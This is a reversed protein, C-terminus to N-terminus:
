LVGKWVTNNKVLQRYQVWGFFNGSTLENTVFNHGTWGLDLLNEAENVDNLLERQAVGIHEFPSAHIRDDSTLMESISKAKEMSDDAKRYSTQACLSVSLALAEDRSIVEGKAADKFFIQNGNDEVFSEVFPTHLQGDRLHRPLSSDLAKHLLKAVEAIEPQASKHDRLWLFNDWETSSVLVKTTTYTEIFRNTLQKHYGASNMMQAFMKNTVAVFKWFEERSFEKVGVDTHMVIKEDNEVDAVMGAQNKGWFIPYAIEQQIMSKTPIARSSSTNRSFLRHTLLHQHALHPYELLVTTLRKGTHLNVSDAVVECSYSSDKESVIKVTM